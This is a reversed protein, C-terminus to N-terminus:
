QNVRKCTGDVVICVIEANNDSDCDVKWGSSNGEIYKCPSTLAPWNTSGGNCITSDVDAANVTHNNLYCDAAEVMANNATKLASTVRARQRSAKMGVALTGALIGIIAMVLLLEILTFGKKDFLLRRRKIVNNKLKILM